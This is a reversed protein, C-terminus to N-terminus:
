ATKNDNRIFKLWYVEKNNVYDFPVTTDDIQFVICIDYRVLQHTYLATHSSKYM